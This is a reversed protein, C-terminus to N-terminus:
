RDHEKIKAKPFKYCECFTKKEWTGESFTYYYTILLLHVMTLEWGLSKSSKFLTKKVPASFFHKTNRRTTQYFNVPSGSTSPAEM